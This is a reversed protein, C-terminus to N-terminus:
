LTLHTYSVPELANFLPKNLDIWSRVLAGEGLLAEVEKRVEQAKYPEKLYVEYGALSYSEGFFEQAKELSMVVTAYDQDFVGKEFTGELLFPRARPLFGFPTRSGMPSVLLVEEGERLGLVESLGRGMAIGERLELGYLGKIDEQELAKVSVSSIRGEKSIFGQYIVVRYARDVQKLGELAEEKQSLEPNLTSVILHPSASLIKEKLAQQFGAFVGMTLLLASVSLSVSMLAILSVVKTSGRGSFLYRLSLKLLPRM